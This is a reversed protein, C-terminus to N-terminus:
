AAISWIVIRTGISLLYRQDFAQTLLPLVALVLLILATAIGRPTRLAAMM